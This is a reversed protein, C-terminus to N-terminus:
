VKQSAGKVSTVPVSGMTTQARRPWMGHLSVLSALMGLFGAWAKHRGKNRTEANLAWFYLSCPIDCIGAKFLALLAKKRRETLAHQAVTNALAHEKHICGLLRIERWVVAVSETTWFFEAVRDVVDAQNATWSKLGGVRQYFAIHDVLCYVAFSLLEILTLKRDLETRALDSGEKAQLVEDISRWSRLPRWFRLSKRAVALTRLLNGPLGENWSPNLGTVMRM